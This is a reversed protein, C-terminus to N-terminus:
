GEQKIAFPFDLDSPCVDILEELFTPCADRKSESVPLRSAQGKKTLQGMAVLQEFLVVEFETLNKIPIKNKVNNRKWLPPSGESFCQLEPKM